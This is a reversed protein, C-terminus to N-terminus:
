RDSSGPHEPFVKALDNYIRDIEQYLYPMLSEVRIKGYNLKARIERIIDDKEERREQSESLEKAVLKPLMQKMHDIKRIHEHYMQQLIQHTGMHPPKWGRPKTTNKLKLVMKCLSLTKQLESTEGLEKEVDPIIKMIKIYLNDIKYSHSKLQGYSIQHNGLKRIEQTIESKEESPEKALIRPLVQEICEIKEIQNLYLEDETQDNGTKKTKNVVENKFRLLAEQLENLEREKSRDVEEVMKGKRDTGPLSSSRELSPEKKNRNVEEIEKRMIDISPFSRSRELSLTVEHLKHDKM